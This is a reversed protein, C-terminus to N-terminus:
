PEDSRRRPRSSVLAFFLKAVDHAMLRQRTKRSRATTSAPEVMDMDLFWRFLMTYDLQECFQRESRITYLAMLVTAKLLREPPCRTAGDPSYMADFTPSLEKLVARVDEQNGKLPHDKAVRSEPAMLCFM